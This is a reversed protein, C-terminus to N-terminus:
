RRVYDNVIKQFEPGFELATPYETVDGKMVAIRGIKRAFIMPMEIVRRPRRFFWAYGEARSVGPNVAAAEWDSPQLGRCPRVDVLELIAYCYGMEGGKEGMVGLLLDGRYCTGTRQVLVSCEAQAEGDIECVTDALKRAMEESVGLSWWLEHLKPDYDAMKM